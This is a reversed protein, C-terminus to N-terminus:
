AFVLIGYVNEVTGVTSRSGYIVMLIAVKKRWDSDKDRHEQGGQEAGKGVATCGKM